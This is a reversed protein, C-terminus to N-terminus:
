SMALYEFQIQRALLNKVDNSFNGDRRFKADM